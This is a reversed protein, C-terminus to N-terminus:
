DLVAFPNGCIREYSTYLGYYNLRTGAKRTRDFFDTSMLFDGVVADEFRRFSEYSSPLLKYVNVRQYIPGLMGMMALRRNKAYREQVARAFRLMDSDKIPVAGLHRRLVSVILDETDGTRVKYYWWAGSYAAAIAAAGAAGTLLLRRRSFRRLPRDQYM